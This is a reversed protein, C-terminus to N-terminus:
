LRVGRPVRCAEPSALVANQLNKRALRNADVLTPPPLLLAHYFAGAVMALWRVFFWLSLVAGAELGEVVVLVAPRAAPRAPPGPAPRRRPGAAAVAAVAGAAATSVAAARGAAGM